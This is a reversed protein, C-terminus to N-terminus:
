PPMFCEGSVSTLAAVTERSPMAQSHDARALLRQALYPVRGPFKWASAASPDVVHNYRLVGTCGRGDGSLASVPASGTPRGIGLRVLIALRGFRGVPKTGDRRDGGPASLASPLLSRMKM